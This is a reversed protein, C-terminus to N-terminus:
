LVALEKALEVRQRILDCGGQCFERDAIEFGLTQVLEDPPRSGGAAM